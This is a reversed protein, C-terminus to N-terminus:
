TGNEKKQMLWSRNIFFCKVDAFFLKLKDSLVYWRQASATRKIMENRQVYNLKDKNILVEKRESCALIPKNIIVTKAEACDLKQKNCIVLKREAYIM